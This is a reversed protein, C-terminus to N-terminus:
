KENTSGRRIENGMIREFLGILDNWPVPDVMHNHFLITCPMKYKRCTSIISLAAVKDAQRHKGKRIAADMLLLPREYVDIQIKKDLDFLPYTSGTGCRFGNKRSFGLSSDFSIGNASWIAPTIPFRTKLFHQRVEHVPRGLCEELVTKENSWAVSDEATIFSPHFCVIHGRLEIERLIELIAGDCPRYYLDFPFVGGAMCYFRSQLGAAESLDMIRRIVASQDVRLLHYLIWTIFRKPMRHAISQGLVEATKQYYLRDLDHTPVLQYTTPCSPVQEGHAEAMRAIWFSYENVLPREDLGHRRVYLEDDPIRDWQDRAKIVTEEWRSLLFFTSAIIDPCIITEGNIEEVAGSGYLTVIDGEPAAPHHFIMPPGPMREHTAYPAGISDQFFSDRFRMRYGNPFSVISDSPGKTESWECEYGLITSLIVGLTYKKEKICPEGLLVALRM